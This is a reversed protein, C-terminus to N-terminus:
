RVPVERFGASPYKKQLGKMILNYRRYFPKTGENPVGNFFPEIVRPTGSSVIKQERVPYKKEKTFLVTVFSGPPVNLFIGKERVTEADYVGPLTYHEGNDSVNAYFKGEPFVQSLFSAEMKEFYNWNFVTFLAFDKGAHGVIQGSKFKKHYNYFWNSLYGKKMEKELKDTLPASDRLTIKERGIRSERDLYPEFEGAYDLGEAIGTLAEADATFVNATVEVGKVGIAFDQAIELRHLMRRFDVGLGQFGKKLGFDKRGYICFYGWNVWHLSTARAIVPKQLAYVGDTRKQLFTELAYVSSLETGLVDADHFDVYEDFLRPDEAFYVMGYSKLDPMWTSELGLDSNWGISVGLEKRLLGLVRAYTYCRFKYWKWPDRAVLEGPSLKLCEEKDFGSFKAYEERCSTCYCNDYPTPEYDTFFLKFGRKIYDSYFERMYARVPSDKQGIRTICYINLAYTRPGKHRIQRTGGADLVCDKETVDFGAKKMDAIEKRQSYGFVQCTVNDKFGYQSLESVPILKEPFWEGGTERIGTVGADRLVKLNATLNEMDWAERLFGLSAWVTFNRPRFKLKPAKMTFLDMKGSVEKVNKGTIKWEATFNEPLNKGPKVFFVLASDTWPVTPRWAHKSIKYVSSFPVGGARIEYTTRGEATNLKVISEKTRPRRTVSFRTIELSEPLTLLVKVDKGIFPKEEAWTYLILASPADSFISGKGNDKYGDPFTRVVISSEAGSSFFAALLLSAFLFFKKM